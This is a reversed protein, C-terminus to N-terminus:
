SQSKIKEVAKSLVNAAFLVALNAEEGDVRFGKVVKLKVNM